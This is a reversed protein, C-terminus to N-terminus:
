GLVINLLLSFILGNPIDLASVGHLMQIASVNFSLSPLSVESVM